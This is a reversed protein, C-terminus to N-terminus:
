KSRKAAHGEELDVEHHDMREELTEEMDVIRHDNDEQDIQYLSDELGQHNRVQDLIDEMHGEEEQSSQHDVQAHTEQLVELSEGVVELQGELDFFSCEEVEVVAGLADDELM